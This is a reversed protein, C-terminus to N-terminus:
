HQHHHGSHESSETETSETISHHDHLSTTSENEPIVLHEHNHNHHGHGSEQQKPLSIVGLGYRYVGEAGLWGTNMLSLLGIFCLILFPISPPNAKHSQRIAMLGLLLFIIATPIASNRHLTMAAHSTADHNVSNYAFWGAVVSAIAFLCGTWLCWNGVITWQGKWSCNNSLFLRAFYFLVSTALLGITFHVLFP